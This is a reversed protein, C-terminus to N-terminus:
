DYLNRMKGAQLVRLNQEEFLLKKQKDMLNEREIEIKQHICYDKNGLLIWKMVNEFCNDCIKNAELFGDMKYKRTEPVYENKCVQCTKMTSM